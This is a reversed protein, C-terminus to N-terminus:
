IHGAVQRYLQATVVVVVLGGTFVVDCATM